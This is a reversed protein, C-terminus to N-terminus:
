VQEGQLELIPGIWKM